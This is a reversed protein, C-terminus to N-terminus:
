LGECDKITLEAEVLEVSDDDDFNIFWGTNPGTLCVANVGSIVFSTEDFDRRRLIRPKIKMYVLLGNCFVDGLKLSSFPVLESKRCDKYIM